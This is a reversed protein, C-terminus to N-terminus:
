KTINQKLYSGDLFILHKKNMNKKIGNENVTM